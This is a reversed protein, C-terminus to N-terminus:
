NLVITFKTTGGQVSNIEIRANHLDLISKVVSLGLGVGGTGRNRSSEIRYFRDFIKANLEQPIGEGYNIISIRVEGNDDEESEISIETNPEGYKIANEVLNSIAHKMLEPDIHVYTDAKSKLVIKMDKEKALYRLPNLAEQLFSGLEIKMKNLKIISHDFKSVFLLKDVINILRLTEEFNSQLISKYEQPTKTSRLALEIEGRLITLPTKLEHSASISFQNMYQISGKIRQIMENMTRVLRGYEDTFEEGDIKEDLNHTTIERTKRIISDIRSLSKSSILAGGIISLILFIPAVFIFINTLSKLTENIQRIPYAVIIKYQSKAFYAARIKDKSLSTDVFTYITKNTDINPFVLNHNGLNDTKFISKNRLKVQIYNNRPNLVVAEFILDYVFDEPSTYLSDPHFNSLNVKADKVFSYISETERTLSNDLHNFMSQALYFYVTTGMVIELLLFLLSYWLTTKFRTTKIYLKLFSIM